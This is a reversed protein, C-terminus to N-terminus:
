LNDLNSLLWVKFEDMKPTWQDLKSMARAIMFAASARDSTMEAVGGHKLWDREMNLISTWEKQSFRELARPAERLGQFMHFGEREIMGEAAGALTMAVDFKGQELAAIAADTQRTAAEILSLNLSGEPVNFAM